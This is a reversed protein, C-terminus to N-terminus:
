PVSQDIRIGLDGDLDHGYPRYNILGYSSSHAKGQVPFNGLIETQRNRSVTLRFGFRERPTQVKVVDSAFERNFGNRIEQVDFYISMVEGGTKALFIMGVAVRVRTQMKERPFITCSAKAAAVTARHGRNIKHDSNQFRAVLRM